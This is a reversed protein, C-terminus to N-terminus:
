QSTKLSRRKIMSSNVSKMCRVPTQAAICESWELRTQCHCLNMSLYHSDRELPSKAQGLKEGIYKDGFLIFISLSVMVCSALFGELCHASVAISSRFAVFTDIFHDLMHLFCTNIEKEFGPRFLYHFSYLCPMSLDAAHGLLPHFIIWKWPHLVTRRASKEGSLM